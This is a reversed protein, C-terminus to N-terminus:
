VEATVGSAVVVEEVRVIRAAESTWGSCVGPARVRPIGQGGLAADIYSQVPHDASPRAVPGHQGFPHQVVVAGVSPDDEHEGPGVEVALELEHLRLPQVVADEDTRWGLLVREDTRVVAGAAERDRPTRYSTPQRIYRGKHDGAPPLVTERRPQSRESPECIEIRSRRAGVVPSSM